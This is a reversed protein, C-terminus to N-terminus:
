KIEVGGFIVDGKITLVPAKEDPESDIKNEWAGLFASGESKVIVNEPTIISIGGFITSTDIVAGDKNLKSKTLDIETAGFMTFINAGTFKKSNVKKETGTFISNISIYEESSKQITAKTSGKLLIAIGIGIILVPWFLSWVNVEFVLNLLLITGIITLIIGGQYKKNIILILGIFIFIAPWLIQLLFRFSLGFLEELGLQNFLLSTGVLILIGGLLLKTYDKKM